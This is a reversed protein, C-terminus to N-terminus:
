PVGGAARVTMAVHSPLLPLDTGDLAVFRPVMPHGEALASVLAELEAWTDLKRRRSEARETKHNTADSVRFWLRGGTRWVEV